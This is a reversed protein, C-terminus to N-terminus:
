FLWYLFYGITLPVGFITNHVIITTLLSGTEQYAYGMALGAITTLLVFFMVPGIPMILINIFHFAGWIIAGIVTGIHLNHGLIKIYGRLNKTLYSQILGRFMTEESVGVVIWQFTINGLVGVVTVPQPIDLPMGTVVQLVHKLSMLFGFLVGLGFMRRRTFVPPHEKLNFGYESLRGRALYCILAFPIVFQPVHLLIALIWSSEEAIKEYSPLSRITAYIFVMVLAVVITMGLMKIIPSLKLEIRETKEM